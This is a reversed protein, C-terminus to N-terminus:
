FRRMRLNDFACYTTCQGTTSRAVPEEDSGTYSAAFSALMAACRVSSLDAFKCFQDWRTDELRAPTYSKLYQVHAAKL